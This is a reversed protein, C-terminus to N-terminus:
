AEFFLQFLAMDTNVKRPNDIIPLGLQSALLDDICSEAAGTDVLAQVASIGPAPTIPPKALRWQPDFGIDVLLTPGWTSLLQSGSGHGPTDDFGCKIEAM